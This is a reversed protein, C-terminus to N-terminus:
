RFGLRSEIAALDLVTASLAPFELPGLRLGKLSVRELPRNQNVLTIVERPGSLKLKRALRQHVVSPVAGTDVLINLNDQSAIAGHVIVAFGAHLKFPVETRPEAAFLSAFSPSLVVLLVSLGLNRARM